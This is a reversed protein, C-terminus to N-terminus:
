NISLLYEYMPNAESMLGERYELLRRNVTSFTDQLSSRKPRAAEERAFERRDSAQMRIMRSAPSEVKEKTETVDPSAVFVILVFIIWVILLNEM